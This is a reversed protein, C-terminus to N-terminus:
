TPESTYDSEEAGRSSCLVRWGYLTMWRARKPRAPSVRYIVKDDQIDIVEYVKGQYEIADHRQPGAAIDAIPRM